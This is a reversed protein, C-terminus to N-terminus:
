CIKLVFLKPLTRSLKPLSSQFISDEHPFGEVPALMAFVVLIDVLHQTDPM